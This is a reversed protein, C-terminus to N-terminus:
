EEQSMDSLEAGNPNVIGSGSSTVKIKKGTTRATEADMNQQREMERGQSKRTVAINDNPPKCAINAGAAVAIKIGYPPSCESTAILSGKVREIIADAIQWSV